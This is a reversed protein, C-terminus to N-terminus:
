YTPTDQILIGEIIVGGHMTGTGASLQWQLDTKQTYPFPVVRRAEYRLGFPAQLVSYNTGNVNDAAVVRYTGYSNGGGPESIYADVRTLYFTHNAPVSYICAQSKGIGANIKAYTATKATNGVTISGVPLSYVFDTALVGNIRLFTNVTQVGTTGNTLIVAETIPKWNQDLGSIVIRCLTDSASSSYVLMNQATSPFTYAAVDEWVPYLNAGILPQYGFINVLSHGPIQGRAVQLEFPESKEEYSLSPSHM